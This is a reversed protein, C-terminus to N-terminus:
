LWVARPLLLPSDWTITPSACIGKSCVNSFGQQCFTTANYNSVVFLPAEEVVPDGHAQLFTIVQDCWSCLMGTVLLACCFGVIHLGRTCFAGM